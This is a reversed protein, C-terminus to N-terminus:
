SIVEADQVVQGSGIARAKLAEIEEATYFVHENSTAVKKVAGFGARDLLSESTRIMANVSPKKDDVIAEGALVKKLIRLAEPATELIDRSIDMAKVDRAAKMLSLRDQVVPSNRINSVQQETCGIRRAIDVNKMGFMLLRIVEHHMEWLENVQWTRGEARALPSMKRLDPGRDPSFYKDTNTAASTAAQM